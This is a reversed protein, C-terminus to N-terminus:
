RSLEVEQRAVEILRSAGKFEFDILDMVKQLQMTRFSKAKRDTAEVRVLQVWIETCRAMLGMCAKMMVDPTSDVSGQITHIMAEVEDYLGFQQNVPAVTADNNAHVNM